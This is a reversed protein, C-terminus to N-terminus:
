VSDLWLNVEPLAIPNEPLNIPNKSPTILATTYFKGDLISPVRLTNNYNLVIISLALVTLITIVKIPTIRKLM